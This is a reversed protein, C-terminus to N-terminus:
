LPHTRIHHDSGGGQGFSQPQNSIPRPRAKAVPKLAGSAGPGSVSLPHDLPSGSSAAIVYYMYIDLNEAHQM